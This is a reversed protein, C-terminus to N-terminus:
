SRYHEHTRKAGLSTFGGECINRSSSVRRVISPGIEKLPLVANSIGAKAVYGPMGWVVSTAEDQAIIYANLAALAECGALGDSGMGTLVAALVNGSYIDAISRFLVDVSPRCSNEAPSQDLSLRVANSARERILRLHYGGPALWITGSELLEGAKAEKVPLACSASLRETLFHTFMPLMHQVILVPVPFDQPFAPLLEALANPGGTSCGIGVIDIRGSGSSQRPAVLSGRAPVDTLKAACLAKIKPILAQGICEKALAPGGANTPKTVYDSAGRALAEITIEAGRETLNSFMIVPLKPHKARIAKLTEIGNMVPMEVDLTVADPSLQEVMALAIEGNAACGAVELQPDAAVVESVLRRIVAMDDVVLVRLKSM